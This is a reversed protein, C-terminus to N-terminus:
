TAREERADALPDRPPDARVELHTLPQEYGQPWALVAPEHRDFVAQLLAEPSDHDEPLLPEQVELRELHGDPSISLPLVAAGTLLSLRATGSPVLVTRGLFRVPTSGKLDCAVWAVGGESLLARVADFSGQAGLLTVDPSHAFTRHLQQRRVGAPTRPQEGLLKSAILTTVPVHRAVCAPHAGFHGQHVVSVIVGRGRDLQARLREVHHVPLRTVVDLRWALEEHRCLELLYARALQELAPARSTRGVLLDMSALAHARPASQRWLRDARLRALALGVSVPYLRQAAGSSQLALVPGLRSAREATM